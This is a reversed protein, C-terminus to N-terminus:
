FKYTYTAAPLIPLFTFQSLVRKGTKENTSPYIFYPCKSNYINFITFTWVGQRGKANKKRYYNAGIDLHHIPKARYNNRNGYEELWKYDGESQHPWEINGLSPYENLPLSYVNGSALTFTAFLDWRHNAKYTMNFKVDHRRDYKAPYEKGQNITPFKRNNWALTYGIWGTLKGETKEAFLEVGYANGKGAEVQEHWPKSSSGWLSGEKYELLNKMNKYFGEISFNYGTRTNYFAGLTFQQAKMPALKPISPVWIDTPNSLSSNTLLHVYQSMMSYSSKFSLNRNLEYGLSVRPQISKYHKERVNFTSFHAGLNAKWHENLTIEDEAYLSTEHAKIVESMFPIDNNVIIGTHDEEYEKSGHVEPKFTHYIYGAGFRIHHNPNPIFEFDVNGSWDEIGSYQYSSSSRKQLGYNKEEPYYLLWSYNNESLFDFKYQNYAVTANVFLKPNFVYNWRLSGLTNGWHFRMYEYNSEDKKGTEAGMFDKGNYVSLYLRSKDNFIHSIKANIDYFYLIPVTEDTFLKATRLFADAWFRRGSISFSTKDKIIPGELNLTGSLLGIGVSGHYEKMNGDRQRIDIVSSLRGGFRAPFSGKYLTVKKVADGNFISFIGYFHGANYVNVGDLLMLNQDPGGGRVYIGSSGEVGAQVGPLLQITKLVDTEGFATPTNKIQERTLEISGSSPSFPKNMKADIIVEKLFTSQELLVHIVTDNQPTINIIEPKYGVYSFQLRIEPDSTTFTYYGYNNSITGKYSLTDRVSVGILSEGTSKDRVYGSVTIKRSKNHLIIHKGSIRWDINTNQFILPLISSLFKNKVSITKRVSLDIDDRYMFSYGSEYEIKRIISELSQNNFEFSFLQEQAQANFIFLLFLITSIIKHNM